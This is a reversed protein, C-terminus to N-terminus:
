VAKYQPYITINASPIIGEALIRIETNKNKPIRIVNDNEFNITSLTFLSEATGDTKIRTIEFHNPRSDYVLKEYQHITTNIEITQYVEGNIFLEIKPNEVLGDIEIHVPVDEHSNNIYQVNTYGSGNFIIDWYFNWRIENDLNEIKYEINQEEYWLSLCDFTITESLIGNQKIQTKSVDSIQVDKFYKKAGTKYPIKYVFRLNESAEIFDILAKYNDYNKFNVTGTIQGQTLKRLNTEFINGLQQYETTYGYGLGSPESLFCYDDWDMLSYEQEKENVLKFERVLM